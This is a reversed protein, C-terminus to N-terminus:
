ASLADGVQGLVRQWHARQREREDADVLHEQHFRITTKDDGGSVSVQVTSDHAWGAPHWKVRVRDGPRFSRLEGSSGDDANFTRGPETPLEAGEGLWLAAGEASTLLGWARDLPVPLTRSVGIQWGADKTMGRPM